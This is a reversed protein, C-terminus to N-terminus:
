VRKVCLVCQEQTGHHWERVPRGGTPAKVPHVRNLRLLLDLATDKRGGDHKGLTEYLDTDTQPGAKIARLLRDAVPDGVADGFIHIVSAKCYDWVALAAMLHPVHIAPKVRQVEAEDLLAYLLSLRLVQASARALIAGTMGGVDEELKPYFNAWLTEAETDRAIEGHTQASQIARTFRAFYPELIKRPVGKGSPLLKSQKVWVFLFRNALGNARETLTLTRILEDQTIHGIICIHAGTAGIRERKTMPKLNGSDWAERIKPSLTNGQREMAALAGAFEPEIVLLRKDSVGPDAGEADRVQYILGEGSSLGGTVSQEVWEGDVQSFLYRPTSWATGKRGGSTPGVLLTNLRAPHPTHEVLAHPGAGILCGGAVLVHTLIGMTHAESYPEVAQTFEGALGHYAAKDLVPLTDGTVVQPIIREGHDIKGIEKALADESLPLPARALNKLRQVDPNLDM